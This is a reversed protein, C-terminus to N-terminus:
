WGTFLEHASGGGQYSPYKGLFQETFIHKLFAVKSM